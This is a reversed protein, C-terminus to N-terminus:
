KGARNEKEGKTREQLDLLDFSVANAVKPDRLDERGGRLGEALM